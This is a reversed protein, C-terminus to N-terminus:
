DGTWDGDVATGQAIAKQRIEEALELFRAMLVDRPVDALLRARTKALERIQAVTLSDAPKVRRQELVDLFEVVLPLDDEALTTLKVAAEGIRAAHQTAM